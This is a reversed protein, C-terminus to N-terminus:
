LVYGLWKIECGLLPIIRVEKVRGVIQVIHTRIGFGRETPCVLHSAILLGLKQFPILLLFIFTEAILLLEQGGAHVIDIYQPLCTRKPIQKQFQDFHVRKPLCFSYWGNEILHEPCHKQFLVSYTNDRSCPVSHSMSLRNFGKLPQCINTPCPVINCMGTISTLDM